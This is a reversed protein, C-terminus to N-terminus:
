FRAPPPSTWSVRLQPAAGSERSRIRIASSIDAGVLIYETSATPLERWQTFSVLIGQNTTSDAAWGRMWALPIPVVLTTDTAPDVKFFRLAPIATGASLGATDTASEAWSAGVRYVDVDLYTRGTAFGNDELADEVGNLHLVWAAENLSYGAPIPPVAARLAVMTEYRGGLLLATEAGTPAPALPTRTYSDFTARSSVTVFTTPAASPHYKVNFTGAGAQFGAVGGGFPARLVFAPTPLGLIRRAEWSRMSDIVSETLDIRLTGRDYTVSFTPIASGGASDALEITFTGNGRIFTPDNPISFYVSDYVATTDTPLSWNLVRLYSEAQYGGEVGVLLTKGFNRQGVGVYTDRDADLVSRNTAGVEEQGRLFRENSVIRDVDKSCGTLLSLFLALPLIGLRRSPRM